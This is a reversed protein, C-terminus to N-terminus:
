KNRKKLKKELLDAIGTDTEWDTQQFFFIDYEINLQELAREIGRNLFSHWQYFLIRM